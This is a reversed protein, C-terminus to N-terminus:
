INTPLPGDLNNDLAYFNELRTMDSFSAPLPGTLSNRAINLDKLYPLKDFVDPFSGVLHNGQWLSEDGLNDDGVSKHLFLGDIHRKGDYMSTRVGFRNEVNTSAFWGGNNTREDGNTNTYLAVIAECEERPVKDPLTGDFDPHSCLQTKDNILFFDDFMVPNSINGGHDELGIGCGIYSGTELFSSM